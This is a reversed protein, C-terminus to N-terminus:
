LDNNNNLNFSGMVEDVPLAFVLGSGEQNLGAKENIAKMMASKKEDEALIMLLDKEPEINLGLFKQTEATGTGRAHIATGGKAGVARAADMVTDAFGRKVIVIILAYKQDNM